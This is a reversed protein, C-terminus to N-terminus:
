VFATFRRSCPPPQPEGIGELQVWQFEGFVEFHVEKLNVLSKWSDSQGRKGFISILVSGLLLILLWKCLFWASTSILTDNTSIAQVIGIIYYNCFM